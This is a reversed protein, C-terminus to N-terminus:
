IEQGKVLLRAAQRELAAPQPEKEHRYVTLGRCGEIAKVVVAGEVEELRAEIGRKPLLADAEEGHSQRNLAGDLLSCFFVVHEPAVLRLLELPSQLLATKDPDCHIM